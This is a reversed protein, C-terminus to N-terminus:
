SPSCPPNKSAGPPAPCDHSYPVWKDQKFGLKADSDDAWSWVWLATGGSEGEAAPAAGVGAAPAEGIPLKGEAAFATRGLQECLSLAGALQTM